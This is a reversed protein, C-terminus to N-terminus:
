LNHNKKWAQQDIGKRRKDFLELEEYIGEILDYDKADELTVWAYETLEHSLRVEGTAYDAYMSIIITPINDSRIYALSTVYGINKIELNVEERVERRVLDEFINYWLDKTDKSREKYDNVNLKGGPVTWQGPFAAEKDSRKAILYKGDNVIIATVVLYHAKKPDYM